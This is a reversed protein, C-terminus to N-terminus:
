LVRHTLALTLSGGRTPLIPPVTHFALPQPPAINMGLAHFVVPFPEGNHFAPLLRKHHSPSGWGLVPHLMQSGLALSTRSFHLSEGMLGWSGQPQTPGLTQAPPPLTGTLQPLSPWRAPSLSLVPITPNPPLLLFLCPITLHHSPFPDREPDMMTRITTAESSSDQPNPVSGEM